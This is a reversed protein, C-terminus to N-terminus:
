RDVQNKVCLELKFMKLFKDLSAITYEHRNQEIKRLTALGVGIKEAFESQSLGLIKRIGKVAEAIDVGNTAFRQYMDARIAQRKEKNRLKPM